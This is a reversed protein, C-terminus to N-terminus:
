TQKDKHVFYSVPLSMMSYVFDKVENVIVAATQGKRRGSFSRRLYAAVDEKSLGSLLVLLENLLRMSTFSIVEAKKNKVQYCFPAVFSDLTRVTRMMTAFFAHPTVRTIEGYYPNRISKKGGLRRRIGMLWIRSEEKLLKAPNISLGM